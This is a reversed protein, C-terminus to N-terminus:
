ELDALGSGSEHRPKEAQAEGLERWRKELERVVKVWDAVLGSFESWERAQARVEERREAGVHELVTKGQERYSLYYAPTQRKSERTGLFREIFSARIMRRRRMLRKELQGRREQLQRIQQRIRSALEPSM